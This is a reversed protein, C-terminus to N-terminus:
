KPPPAAVVELLTRSLEAIGVPKILCKSLKAVSISRSLLEPNIYGTILVRRTNPHLQSVRILFDLGKEGPMLHDCVVADYKALAMRMEAEESNQAVEVDFHISLGLRLMELYAREDDVLLLSPRAAPTESAM